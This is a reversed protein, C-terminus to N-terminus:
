CTFSLSDALMKDRYRMDMVKDVIFSVDSLVLNEQEQSWSASISGVEVCAGKMTELM